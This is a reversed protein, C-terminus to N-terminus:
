NESLHGCIPALNFSPDANSTDFFEDGLRFPAVEHEAAPREPGINGTLNRFDDPVTRPADRTLENRDIHYLSTIADHSDDLDPVALDGVKNSPGWYPKSPHPQLPLRLPADCLGTM